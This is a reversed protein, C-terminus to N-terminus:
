EMEEISLVFDHNKEGLELIHLKSLYNMITKSKYAFSSFDQRHHM